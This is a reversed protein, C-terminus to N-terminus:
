ALKHRGLHPAIHLDYLSAYHKATKAGAADAKRRVQTSRRVNEHARSGRAGERRAGAV